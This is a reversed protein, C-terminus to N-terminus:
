KDKESQRSVTRNLWTNLGIILGTTIWLQNDLFGSGLFQYFIAYALFAGFLAHALASVEIGSPLGSISQSLRINNWALRFIKYVIFTFLILGALGLEAYVLYVVNHPEFVGHTEQYSYYRFIHEPFGRWGVGLLWSDFFMGLSAYILLIRVYNSTDVSGTFLGLFRNVINLFLHRLEPVLALVVLIVIVGAVFLNYQRYLVALLIMMILIAVWASRSFTVLVAALLIFFCLISILRVPLHTRSFSLTATFALPLFFLSAFINPDTQGVRARTALRTGDTLIDQIIAMPNNITYYIAILGLISGLVVLSSIVYTIHRPNKIWNSFLFLLGSLALVRIAHLFAREADPTWLISLFVLSFFLALELEFGTKVLPEHGTIFWRVIFVLIALLYFVQFLSFPILGDEVVHVINGAMSGAAILILLLLPATVMRTAVYVAVIAALFVWELPPLGIFWTAWRLFLYLLTAGIAILWDVASTSSFYHLWSTAVNNRM